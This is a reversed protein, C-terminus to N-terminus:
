RKREISAVEKKLLGAVRHKILYVQALSVRLTTAIKAAPWHKFMSCDFIQFQSATVKAKVREIATELLSSKWEDEWLAEFGPGDDPVDGVTTTGKPTQRASPRRKFQDIIRWRTLQLLWTKFPGVKRDYSGINRAVGIVTEQVVEQAETDNLGAKRAINYILRWYTDFFEQWKVRDALDPLRDLMSRRTALLRSGAPKM